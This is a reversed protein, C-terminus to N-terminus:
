HQTKSPQKGFRLYNVTVGGVHARRVLLLWPRVTRTRGSSGSRTTSLASRGTWALVGSCASHRAGAITNFNEVIPLSIHTVDDNIGVTFHNLPKEQLLNDFIAKAM